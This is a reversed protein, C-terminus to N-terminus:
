PGYKPRFGTACIGLTSANLESDGAGTPDFEMGDVGSGGVESGDM